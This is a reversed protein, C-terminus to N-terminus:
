KRLPVFAIPVLRVRSMDPAPPDLDDAVHHLLDLMDRVAGQGRVARVAGKMEEASGSDISIRKAWKDVIPRIDAVREPIQFSNALMLALEDILKEIDSFPAPRLVSAWLAGAGLPDIGALGRYAAPSVIEAQKTTLISFVDAFFDDAKSGRVLISELAYANEAPPPEPRDRIESHKRGAELLRKAQDESLPAEARDLLVAIVNVAFAPHDPPTMVVMPPPPDNPDSDPSPLGYGDPMDIVYARYREMVADAKKRREEEAPSSPDPPGARRLELTLETMDKIATAVQRWNRAKLDDHGPFEFRVDPKSPPKARLPGAPAPEVMRVLKGGKKQQPKGGAEAGGTTEGGKGAEYLLWGVGGALALVGGFVAAATGAGQRM